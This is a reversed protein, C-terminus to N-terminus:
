FDDPGGDLFPINDAAFGPDPCLALTAPGEGASGAIPIPAGLYDIAFPNRFRLIQCSEMLPLLKYLVEVEHVSFVVSAQETEIAPVWRVVMNARPVLFLGLYQAKPMVNLRLVGSGSRVMRPMVATCSLYLSDHRRGTQHMYSSWLEAKQIPSLPWASLSAYLATDRNDRGVVNDFDQPALRLMHPTVRHSSSGLRGPPAPRGMLGPRGSRNLFRRGTLLERADARAEGRQISAATRHNIGLEFVRAPLLADPLGTYFRFVLLHPAAGLAQQMPLTQDYPHGVGPLNVRMAALLDAGRPGAVAARLEGIVQAQTTEPMDYLQFRCWRRFEPYDDITFLNSNLPM